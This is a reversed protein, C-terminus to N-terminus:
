AAGEKLEAETCVVRAAGRYDAASNRGHGPARPKNEKKKKSPRVALQKEEEDTAQKEVLVLQRLAKLTTKKKKLLSFIKIELEILKEIVVMDGDELKAQRVRELLAQMQAMTIIESKTGM